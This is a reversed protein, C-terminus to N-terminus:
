PRNKYNLNTIKKNEKLDQFVNQLYVKENLNIIVIIKSNKTIVFNKGLM